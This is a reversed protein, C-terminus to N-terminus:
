TLRMCAAIAMDVGDKDDGTDDSIADFLLNKAFVLSRVCISM